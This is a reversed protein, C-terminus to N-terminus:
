IVTLMDWFHRAPKWPFIQALEQHVTPTRRQIRGAVLFVWQALPGLVDSRSAMGIHSRHGPGDLGGADGPRHDAMATVIAGFLPHVSGSAPNSLLQVM